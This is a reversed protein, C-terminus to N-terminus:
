AAALEETDLAAVLRRGQWVECKLAHAKLSQAQQIAAQDDVAEIPESLGINGAADMCYLTYKAM